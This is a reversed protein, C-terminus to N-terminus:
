RVMEFHSLRLREAAESMPTTIIEGRADVFCNRCYYKRRGRSCHKSVVVEGIGLDLGCRECNQFRSKSSLVVLQTLTKSM